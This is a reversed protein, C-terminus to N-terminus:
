SKLVVKLEDGEVEILDRLTGLDQSTSVNLRKLLKDGDYYELEMEGEKVFIDLCYRKDYLAIMKKSVDLWIKVGKLLELNITSMLAVEKQKRPPHPLNLSYTMRGQVDPIRHFTFTLRNVTRLGARPTM